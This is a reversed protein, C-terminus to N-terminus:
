RSASAAHIFALVSEYLSRRNRDLHLVHTGDSIRLQWKMPSNTFRGLFNTATTDNVISDYNGYVVFVPAHVKRADYPYTGAVAAQVDLISGAPIRVTGASDGDFRPASKAFARVWRQDVATDLLAIGAPLLDKFHLDDWQEQADLAFWAYNVPEILDDRADPVVPGFLILSKIEESHTAAFAAAPITGWSHAVLHVASPAQKTRLFEIALGIQHAAEPARLVPAAGSPEEYMASPRTSRGFGLFDLGCALYGRAATYNLWSDSPAFQYGSAVETPFSSGHIFLVAHTASTAPRVCHLALQQMTGPIAVHATELTGTLAAALGLAIYTLM